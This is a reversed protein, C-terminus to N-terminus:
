RRTNLSQWKELLEARKENVFNRAVDLKARPLSGVIVSGDAIAIQVAREAWYAHVHPPPHDDPYIYVQVGESDLLKPM